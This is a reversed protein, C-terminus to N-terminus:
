QRLFQSNSTAKNKQNKVHKERLGRQNKKNECKGRLKHLNLSTLISISRGSNIIISKPFTSPIPFQDLLRNNVNLIGM